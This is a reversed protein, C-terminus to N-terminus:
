RVESVIGLAYDHFNTYHSSIYSEIISEVSKIADQSSFKIGTKKGFSSREGELNGGLILEFGSVMEGNHKLKCGLLGIDV